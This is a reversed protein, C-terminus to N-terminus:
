GREGWSLSRGCLKLSLLDSCSIRLEPLGGLEAPVNSGPVTQQAATSGASHGLHPVEPHSSNDVLTPGPSTLFAAAELSNGLLGRHNSYSM